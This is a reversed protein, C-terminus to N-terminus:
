AGHHEGLKSAQVQYLRPQQGGVRILKSRKGDAGPMPLAGVELLVNLARNWDFGKVAERMGEANFMYVREGGEDKWWGARNIRM